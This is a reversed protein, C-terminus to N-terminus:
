TKEIYSKMLKTLVAAQSEGMNECAIKFQDTLNKDLKYTKAVLGIKSQYKQSAVTRPSPNGIPM